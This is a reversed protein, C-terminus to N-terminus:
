CNFKMMELFTISKKQKPNEICECYIRWSSKVSVSYEKERQIPAIPAYVQIKRNFNEALVWGVAYLKNKEWMVARMELSDDSGFIELKVLNQNIWKKFKTHQNKQVKKSLEPFFFVSSFIFLIPAALFFYM